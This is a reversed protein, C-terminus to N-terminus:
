SLWSKGGGSAPSPLTPTRLLEDILVALLVGAALFVFLMMRVPLINDLLPARILGLWLLIVGYLMVRAQLFRALLPFVLALAFVPICSVHGAYHLDSSCVDSSWDGYSSA